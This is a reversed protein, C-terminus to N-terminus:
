APHFHYKAERLSCASFVSGTNNNKAMLHLATVDADTREHCENESFAIEYTKGDIYFCFKATSNMESNM